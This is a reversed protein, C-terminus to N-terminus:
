SGSSRTRSYTSCQTGSPWQSSFVPSGISATLVRDLAATASGPRIRQKTRDQAPPAKSQILAQQSAYASDGHLAKEVHLWQPLPHKDHVNAATVIASHALGTKSDVGIHLKKGHQWQKVTKRSRRPAPTEAERNDLRSIEAYPWSKDCRVSGAVEFRSSARAQVTRVADVTFGAASVRSSKLNLKALVRSGRRVSALEDILHDLGHVLDTARGALEASHDADDRELGVDQRELSRDFGSVSSHLASAQTTAVLTRSRAPLEDDAALSILPWGHPLPMM